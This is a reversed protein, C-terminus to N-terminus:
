TPEADLLLLLNKESEMPPHIGCEMPLLIAGPLTNRYFLVISVRWRAWSTPDTEGRVRGEPGMGQDVFFDGGRARCPSTASFSPTQLEMRGSVITVLVRGRTFDLAYIEAHDRAGM